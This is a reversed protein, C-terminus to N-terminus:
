STSLDVSEPMRMGKPGQIICATDSRLLLEIQKGIKKLSGVRGGRMDFTRGWCDTEAPVCIRDNNLTFITM